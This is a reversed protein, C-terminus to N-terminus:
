RGVPIIRWTECKHKTLRCERQGHPVAGVVGVRQLDTLGRRVYLVIESFHNYPTDDYAGCDEVAFDALEASTPQMECNDIFCELWKLVNGRRGSFRERGDQFAAISTERLRRRRREGRGASPLLSLQTM